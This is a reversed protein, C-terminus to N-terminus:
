FFLVVQDKSYGALGNTKGVLGVLFIMFFLFRSVKGVLFLFSAFRTSLQQAFSLHALQLWVIFYKKMAGGILVSALGEAM